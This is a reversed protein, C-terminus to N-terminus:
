PGGLSLSPRQPRCPLSGVLQRSRSLLKTHHDREPPADQLMSTEIRGLPYDRGANVRPVSATEDSRLDCFIYCRISPLSVTDSPRMLCNLRTASATTAAKEVLLGVRAASLVTLIPTKTSIFPGSEVAEPRPESSAARIAASSKLQDTSPLRMSIM